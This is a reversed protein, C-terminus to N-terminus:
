AAKRRRSLVFAGGGILVVLAGLGVLGWPVTSAESVVAADSAGGDAGSDSPLTFAVAEENAPVEANKVPEGCGSAPYGDIGCVMDSEVRLDTVEGLIQQTTADQAVVACEARPEPPTGSGLETGYDLLVAVRKDGDAAEADACVTDFDVEGLDARPEIGQSPTSTGYRFGEVDGDKPTYDSPGVKAFGWKDDQLHFYNWYQYGEAAHAPLALGAVTLTAVFFASFIGIIRRPLLTAL